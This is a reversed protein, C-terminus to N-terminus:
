AASAPQYCLHTWPRPTTAGWPRSWPSGAKGATATPDETSPGCCSCLDPGASGSFASAWSSTVSFGWSRKALGISCGAAEHHSDSGPRSRPSCEPEAGTAPQWPESGSGTALEAKECLRGCKVEGRQERGGRRQLAPSTATTSPVGHFQTTDHQQQEGRGREVGGPKEDTAITQQHGPECEKSADSRTWSWCRTLLIHMSLLPPTIPLSLFPLM